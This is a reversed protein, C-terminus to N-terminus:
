IFLASGSFLLAVLSRSRFLLVTDFRSRVLAGSRFLLVLAVCSFSFSGLAKFAGRKGNRALVPKM